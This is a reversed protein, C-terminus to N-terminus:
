KPQYSFESYGYSNFKRLAKGMVSVDSQLEVKEILWGDHEVPRGEFTLRLRKVTIPFEKLQRVTEMEYVVLHCGEVSFCASGEVASAIQGRVGKDKVEPKADFTARICPIGNVTEEGVIRYNQDQLIPMLALNEGVPNELELEEAQGHHKTFRAKERHQRVEKPTPERGDIEILEEDFGEASPTVRFHMEQLFTVEGKDDLSRRTVHRDFAYDSWSGIDESWALDSCETLTKLDPPDAQAAGAVLAVIILALVKM